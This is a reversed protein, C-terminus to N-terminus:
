GTTSKYVDIAAVKGNEFSIAITEIETFPYASSTGKIEKPHSASYVLAQPYEATPSGMLDRIAARSQGLRIPVPLSVNGARPLSKCREDPVSHAPVTRWQFGSVLPPNYLDGREELWIMWPASAQLQRETQFYCLWVMGDGAEGQHGVVGGLHAQADELPTRELAVPYGAVKISTIRIASGEAHTVQPREDRDPTSPPQWLSQAQVTGAVMLVTLGIQLKM